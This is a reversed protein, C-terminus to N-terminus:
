SIFSYFYKLVTHVGDGFVGARVATLELLNIGM